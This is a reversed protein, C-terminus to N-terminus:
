HRRVPSVDLSFEKLREGALSYMEHVSKPRIHLAPQHGHPVFDHEALPIDDPADVSQQFVLCVKHM